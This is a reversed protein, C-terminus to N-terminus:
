LLLPQGKFTYTVVKENQKISNPLVLINLTRHPEYTAAHRLISRPTTAWNTTRRSATLCTRTRNEARTKESLRGAIPLHLSVEDFFLFFLAM